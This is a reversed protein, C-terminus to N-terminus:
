QVTRANACVVHVYRRIGEDDSTLERLAKQTYLWSSNERVRKRLRMEDNVAQVFSTYCVNTVM